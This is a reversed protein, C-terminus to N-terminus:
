LAAIALFGAILGTGGYPAFKGYTRDQYYAVLYNSGSFACAGAVLCAGAVGRARPSPLAATGLLTAAAFQHYQVATRWIARYEDSMHSSAHAGVAGAGISSAGLLGAVRAQWM